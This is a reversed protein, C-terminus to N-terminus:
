LVQQLVNGPTTMALRMQQPAAIEPLNSGDPSRNQQARNYVKIKVCLRLSRLIYKHDFETGSVKSSLCSKPRFTMGSHKLRADM